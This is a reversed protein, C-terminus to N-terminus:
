RTEESRAPSVAAIAEAVVEPADLMVLHSSGPAGVQAGQPTSAALDRHLARIRARERGAFRPEATVVRLPVDPLSRAPAGSPAAARVSAARM